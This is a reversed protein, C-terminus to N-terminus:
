MMQKCLLLGCCLTSPAPSVPHHLRPSCHSTDPAPAALHLQRSADGALTALPLVAILHWWITASFTGSHSKFGNVTDTSFNLNISTATLRLTACDPPARLSSVYRPLWHWCGAAQGAAPTHIGAVSRQWCIKNINLEMLGGYNEIYIKDAIDNIAGGGGVAAVCVAVTVKNKRFRSGRLSSLYMLTSIDIYLFTKDDSLKSIKAPWHGPHRPHWWGSSCPPPHRTAARM